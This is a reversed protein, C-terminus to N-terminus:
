VEEEVVVAVDVDDYISQTRSVTFDFLNREGQLQVTVVQEAPTVAVPQRPHHWSHTLVAGVLGAVVAISAAMRLSVGYRLLSRFWSTKAAAPVAAGFIRQRLGASPRALPLSALKKEFDDM